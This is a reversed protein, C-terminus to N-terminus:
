APARPPWVHGDEGLTAEVGVVFSATRALPEFAGAAQAQELVAVCASFFPKEFEADGVPAPWHLTGGDIETIRVGTASLEYADRWKPFTVTSYESHSADWPNSEGGVDFAIM